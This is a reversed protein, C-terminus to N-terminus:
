KALFSAGPQTPRPPELESPQFKASFKQIEELIPATDVEVIRGDQTRIKAVYAICAYYRGAENESFLRWESDMRKTSDAPLDMAEQDSLSQIHNGWVDFLVFRIEFAQLASRTKITYRAAWRYGSDKYVVKIGADDPLQLPLGPTNLVLRSAARPVLDISM